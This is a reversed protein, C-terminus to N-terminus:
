FQQLVDQAPQQGRKRGSLVQLLQKHLAFRKASILISNFVPIQPVVNDYCM